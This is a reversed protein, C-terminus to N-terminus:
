GGGFPRIYAKWGPFYADTLVLWGRDSLNVDVFVDNATYRSIRAEAVQPSARTLANTVSLLLMEVGAGLGDTLGPYILELIRFLDEAEKRVPTATLGLVSGSAALVAPSAFNESAILQLTTNQRTQERDIVAFLEDDPSGPWGM